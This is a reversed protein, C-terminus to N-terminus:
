IVAKKIEKLIIKNVKNNAFDKYLTNLSINRKYRKIGIAETSIDRLADTFYFEKFQIKKDTNFKIYLLPDSENIKFNVNKSPVMFSPNIPRFWKSINFEGPVIYSNLAPQNSFFAPMVSVDLSEESFLSLSITYDMILSDKNYNRVSILQSSSITKSMLNGDTDIDIDINFPNKIYFMNNLFKKSGPCSMWNTNTSEAQGIVKNQYPALPNFSLDVMHSSKDSLLNYKSWYVTIM